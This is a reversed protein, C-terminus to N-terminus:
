VLCLMLTFGAYLASLFTRRETFGRLNSETRLTVPMMLLSTSQLRILYSKGSEVPFTPYDSWPVAWSSRPYFDGARAVASEPNELSYLEARDLTLSEFVLFMSQKGSTRPTSFKLWHAADSFGEDLIAGAVPKFDARVVDRATWNRANDKFGALYPIASVEGSAADESAM